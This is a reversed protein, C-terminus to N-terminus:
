NVIDYFKKYNQSKKYEYDRTGDPNTPRHYEYGDEYYVGKLITLLDHKKLEELEPPLIINDSEDFKISKGDLDRFLQILVQTNNTDPNIFAKFLGVSYYIADIYNFSFAHENFKVFCHKKSDIDLQNHHIFVIVPRKLMEEKEKSTDRLVDPFAVWYEPVFNKVFNTLTSVLLLLFMDFSLETPNVM